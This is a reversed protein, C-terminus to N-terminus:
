TLGLGQLDWSALAQLMRFFIHLRPIGSTQHVGGPMVEEPVSYGQGQQSGAGDASPGGPPLPNALKTPVPLDSSTPLSLDENSVLKSTASRMLSM